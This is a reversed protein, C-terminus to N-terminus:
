DKAPIIQADKPAFGLRAYFAHFAYAGEIVAIEPRHRWYLDHTEPTAKQKHALIGVELQFWEIAGELHQTPPTIRPSSVNPGIYGIHFAEYITRGIEYGEPLTASKWEFYASPRGDKCTWTEEIGNAFLKAIAQPLEPEM